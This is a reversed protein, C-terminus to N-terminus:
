SQSIGLLTSLFRANNAAYGAQDNDFYCFIKYGRNKWGSITDAWRSLKSRSYNGQYPGSPGHLRIYVFDSTIEKPSLYGDFEYICFAVNHRALIDLTQKNIWTRDRFEFTYRFDQSLSLLFANLREANFNWRPPLQFLIPGLKHGLASVHELLKYSSKEPAKLKKMHTIYRSAKVSFVFDKPVADRWGHFTNLSPLQYFTSNLEVSHFHSIYYNLMQDRALNKPYFVGRWHDYSWGSTGIYIATNM